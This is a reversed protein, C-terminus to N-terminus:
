ASLGAFIAENSDAWLPKAWDGFPKDTLVIAGIKSTPHLWLYTGSQGFHGVVDQPMSPGTWHPNKDGKIEFGLGWPCPKQNGYGPVIGNLESYQIAFAEDLTSPDLLRPAFLEQMFAVLDKATSRAEHGPSGWLTTQSMGLPAFVAEKLYQAFEMGTEAELVEALIEFGFSSYVRKEEVARAQDSEKFGVGSAHALLHRVTAGMPGCPTELEFVGEEVAVLFGYAALLKTVSALEYVYNEDGIIEVDDASIIAASVNNVPWSEFISSFAMVGMSSALSEGACQNRSFSM